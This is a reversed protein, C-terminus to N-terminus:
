DRGPLTDFFGEELLPNVEVKVYERALTESLQGNFRVVERTPVVLGDVTAFSTFTREVVGVKAGVGRARSTMRLVRESEDDIDLLTSRGRLHVEIQRVGRGGVTEPGRDFVLCEPELSRALVVIVHRERIGELAKCQDPALAIEGQSSYSFGTGGPRLADGWAYEAWTEDRRVGEPFGITLRRTAKAPKGQNDVDREAHLSIARLSRLVKEGGMGAIARQLVERGAAAEADTGTPAPDDTEIMAAPDSLFNQRCGDSAFIWIKGEFVAYRDPSGAGSLPGMGGCAGGWQIRYKEPAKEFAAKNEANAFLYRYGEFECSLDPAGPIERGQVLEIPDVPLTGRPEAPSAALSALAVLLTFM